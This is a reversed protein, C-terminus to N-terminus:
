FFRTPLLACLPFWAPFFILDLIYSSPVDDTHILPIVSTIDPFFVLFSSVQSIFLFLLLHSIVM